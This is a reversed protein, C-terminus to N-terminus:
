IIVLEGRLAGAQQLAQFIAIIDRPTVGLSNLAAAVDGVSAAEQMVVVGTGQEKVEIQTANRVVTQGQSFAGPQSIVPTNVISISLTGHSIAVSSIGVEAGIVVTGTRENVVVRAEVDPVVMLLEIDSIQAMTGGPYDEKIEVVVSVPDLASAIEECMATNIAVAMRRATTYDPENLIFEINQMDEITKGPSLEVLFGNPIRGVSSTNKRISVSGQQINFGGVSLPGQAIGYVTEDPAVLATLLLTGGQLSRADGLSSVTVDHRQGPKAFDNLTATVMVGAVNRTRVRDSNISIGFREMMNGLAQNTFLSRPSDGTSELGVVIGYGILPIGGQGQLNSIDKIRQQGYASAAIFLLIMMCSM